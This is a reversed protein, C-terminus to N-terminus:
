QLLFFHISRQLKNNLNFFWNCSCQMLLMNYLLCLFFSEVSFGTFCSKSSSTIAIGDLFVATSFASSSPIPFYWIIIIHNITYYTFDLWSKKQCLFFNCNEIVSIFVSIFVAAVTTILFSSLHKRIDLPYYRYLLALM